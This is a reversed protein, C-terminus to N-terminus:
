KWALENLFFSREYPDFRFGTLRRSVSTQQVYSSVPILPKDDYVSQAVAQAQQRYVADDSERIMSNLTARITPNSWNMSGWDGGKESGFDRIMIALPDAITGYNRAILAVELSGDQHGAPISSSNTINVNLKVGLRRWQDQVATAVTTLEPRDAYTILDLEFRDGNKELWGEANKEWGLGAMLAEARALNFDAEGTDLHWAGMHAPFLQTTGAGPTRLIATAIGSRNIALSLAQRADGDSLYPHALNLKLALTRPLESRVVQLNPLRELMPVAAPDLGFVLDGQGSRAQLVRAEARHGTLYRAYEVEAVKGWYDQFRQVVLRHPVAIEYVKYPGTGILAKVSGEEDYAGPALMATSYNALVGGLPRYPEALTIRLAREGVAEIREIPVGQLAGPRTRALNLNEAVVGATMPTGDHFVVGEQLQIDWIRNGERQSWEAALGPILRGTEDVNFLTELVQMRTFIYGSRTPDLSSFEFAAQINVTNAPTPQAQVLSGSLIWFVGAIFLVRNFWSM